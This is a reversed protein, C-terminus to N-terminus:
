HAVNGVGIGGLIGAPSTRAGCGVLAAKALLSKEKKDTKRERDFEVFFGDSKFVWDWVSRASDANNADSRDLTALQDLAEGIRSELDIVNQDSTTRTIAPQGPDALNRIVKNWALRNKLKKLL